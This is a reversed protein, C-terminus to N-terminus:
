SSCSRVSTPSPVIVAILVGTVTGVEGTPGVHHPRSGPQGSGLVGADGGRAERLALGAPTRPHSSGWGRRMATNEVRGRIKAYRDTSRRGRSAPMGRGCNLAGATSVPVFARYVIWESLDVTCRHSLATLFSRRPRARGGHPRLALWVAVLPTFYLPTERTLVALGWLVGAGAAVLTRSSEDAAYLREFAWWLLVMFAMESWFHVSFWVLDPYFAVIGAAALGTRPGFVREGLCGVAPILLVSVFAQCVKVATLSGFLAYTAGIFYPYVPPYFILRLKLPSFAVESGALVEAGWTTWTHEDGALSHTPELLLFAIRVALGAVTLLLLPRTMPKPALARGYCPSRLPLCGPM